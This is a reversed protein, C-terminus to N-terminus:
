AVYFFCTRFLAFKKGASGWGIKHLLSLNQPARYFAAIYYIVKDLTSILLSKVLKKEGL